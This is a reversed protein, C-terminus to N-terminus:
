SINKIPPMSWKGSPAYKVICDVAEGVLRERDQDEAKDGISGGMALLRPATLKPEFSYKPGKELTRGLQDPVTDERLTTVVNNVPSGPARSRYFSGSANVCSSQLNGPMDKKKKLRAANPGKQM